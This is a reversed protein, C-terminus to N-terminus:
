GCRILRIKKNMLAACYLVGTALGAMLAIEEWESIRLMLCAAVVMLGGMALFVDRFIMWATGWLIQKESESRRKGSIYGGAYVMMQGVVQGVAGVCIAVLYFGLMRLSGLARDPFLWLFTVFLYFVGVVIVLLLGFLELIEGALRQGWSTDM